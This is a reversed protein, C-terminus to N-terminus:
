TSAPPNPVSRLSLTVPGDNVLRVQMHVGFRGTAVHPHMARACQTAHAFLARGLAPDAAPTFDPRNGRTTDAALTFQPVLLLGGGVDRLSRNMRGVEDAFVRHNLVREILRAVQTRADGREFCLLVLLGNDIAGIIEGDVAVSAEAVRQLLAIM